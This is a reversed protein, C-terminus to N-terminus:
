ELASLCFLFAPSAEPVSVVPSFHSFNAIELVGNGALPFPVSDPGSFYDLPFVFGGCVMFSPNRIQKEL